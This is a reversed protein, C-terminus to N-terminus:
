VAKMLTEDYKKSYFDFKRVWHINENSEEGHNVRASESNEACVDMMFSYYRMRLKKIFSRIKKM